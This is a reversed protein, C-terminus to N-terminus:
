WARATRKGPRGTMAIVYPCDSAHVLQTGQLEYKYPRPQWGRNDGLFVLQGDASVDGLKAMGNQITQAVAANRTAPTSQFFTRWDNDPNFIQAAAGLPLAAGLAFVLFANRFTM